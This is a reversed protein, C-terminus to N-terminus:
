ASTATMMTTTWATSSPALSLPNPTNNDGQCSPAEVLTSAAALARDRRDTQTLPQHTIAVPNGASSPLIFHNPNAQAQNPPPQTFQPLVAAAAAARRHLPRRSHLFALGPMRSPSRALFFSSALRTTLVHLAGHFKYLQSMYATTYCPQRYRYFLM